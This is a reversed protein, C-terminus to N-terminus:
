KRLSTFWEFFKDRHVRIGRKGSRFVAGQVQKEIKNILLHVNTRSYQTADIIDKSRLLLPYAEFPSKLTINDIESPPSSINNSNEVPPSSSDCFIKSNLLLTKLKGCIFDIIEEETVRSNM